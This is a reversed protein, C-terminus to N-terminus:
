ILNWNASFWVVRSKLRLEFYPQQRSGRAADRRGLGPLSQQRCECRAEVPDLRLDFREEVYTVLRDASGANGGGLVNGIGNQPRFQCGEQRVVRVDFDLDDDFVIHDVDDGVTGISPHAEAILYRLVHDRDANCRVETYGDHAHGGVERLIGAQAVGCSRVACSQM